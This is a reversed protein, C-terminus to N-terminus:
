CCLERRRNCNEWLFLSTLTDEASYFISELSNFFLLFKLFVPFCYKQVQFKYEQIWPLKLFLGWEVFLLLRSQHSVFHFSNRIMESRVWPSFSKQFEEFRPMSLWSHDFHCVVTGVVWREERVAVHRCWRNIVCRATDEVEILYTLAKWTAGVHRLRRSVKYVSQFVTQRVIISFRPKPLACNHSEQGCFTSCLDFQRVVLINAMTSVSLVISSMRFISPIKNKNKRCKLLKGYCSM